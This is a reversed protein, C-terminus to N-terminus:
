GSKEKKLSFNGSKKKFIRFPLIVESVAKGKSQNTPRLSNSKALDRKLEKWILALGFIIKNQDEFVHSLSLFEWIKVELPRFKKIKLTEENLLKKGLGSNWKQSLTEKKKNIKELNRM